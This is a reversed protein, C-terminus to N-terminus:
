INYSIFHDFAVNDFFLVVRDINQAFTNLLSGSCLFEGCPSMSILWM